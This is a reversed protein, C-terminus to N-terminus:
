WRWRTFRGSLTKVRKKSSVERKRPFKLTKGQDQSGTPHSHFFKVDSGSGFRRSLKEASSSTGVNPLGCPQTVIM